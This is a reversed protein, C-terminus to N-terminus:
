EAPDDNSPGDDPAPLVFLPTSSDVNLDITQLYRYTSAEYLDITNGANYIYLVDGSSSPMLSMRPRGPFPQRSEVRMQELDITWFEYNGVESHLGYAKRSGPALAFSVSESPGLISFEVDREALNVRAVGMLQRNQSPDSIRFLGTYYGPEEYAQDPFGFDFEGVRDGLADEYDWSDVQTFGETEFVLIEDSFFYLLDGDPSFVLQARERPEEEPWPITDTVTRSQLDYRLLLPRSVEFRDPQRDYTKALLIAYRELPDVVYSSIRVKRNGESLTFQDVVERRAIDVVEITEYMTNLVYFRDRNASLVMSRPMGSTLEIEDEITSTAEDIVAINRYTGIYMKADGPHVSPGDGAGQALGDSAAGVLAALVVVAAARRRAMTGSRNTRSM